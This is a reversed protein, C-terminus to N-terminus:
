RVVCTLEGAVREVVPAWAGPSPQRFLRMTPYWPTDERDLMWRWDANWPLMVWVPRGLAGALHAAMTDVTMFLDINMLDAATDAIEPSNQATDHLFAGPPVSSAEFSKPGRQFSYFSCGPTCLVPALDALTMSRDPNWASSAWVLGVRLRPSDHRAIASESIARFSSNLYPIECPVTEVTTRFARPLEMVEIQQDWDGGPQASAHTWSVIADAGPLGALLSVMEPHTQVIVHRATERALRAYRLFQIADGYGHLCRIILRKGAFPKGDWLGDPDAGSRTISDCEQWACEFDGLLMWCKWRQAACAGPDHGLTQARDFCDIAPQARRGSLAALGLEFELAARELANSRRLSSFAVSEGLM